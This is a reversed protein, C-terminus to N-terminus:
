WNEFLVNQKSAGAEVSGRMPWYCVPMSNLVIDIEEKRGLKFFLTKQESWKMKCPMRTPWPWILCPTPNCKLRRCRAFLRNVEQPKEHNEWSVGQFRRQVNWYGSRCWATTGGGFSERCGRWRRFFYLTWYRYFMTRCPLVYLVWLVVFDIRMVIAETLFQGLYSLMNKQTKFEQIQKKLVLNAKVVQQKLWGFIASVM